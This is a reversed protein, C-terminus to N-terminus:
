HLSNGDKLRFLLRHQIGPQTIGIEHGLIKNTLPHASAMQILLWEYDDYGAIVFKHHTGELGQDKLWNQLTPPNMFDPWMCPPKNCCQLELPKVAKKNRLKNELFSQFEESDQSVGLIIRDRNGCKEVGKSQLLLHKDKYNLNNFEKFLARLTLIGNRALSNGLSELNLKSLWKELDKDLSANRFTIQYSNPASQSPHCIATIPFAAVQNNKTDLLEEVGQSIRLNKTQSLVNDVLQQSHDNFTDGEWSVSLHNNYHEMQNLLERCLNSEDLKHKRSVIDNKISVFTATQQYHNTNSEFFNSTTQCNSYNMSSHNYIFKDELMKKIDGTAEFKSDEEHLTNLCKSLQTEIRVLDDTDYVDQSIHCTTSAYNSESNKTKKIYNEINNIKRVNHLDTGKTINTPIKLIRTMETTQAYEMATKGVHDKINSL